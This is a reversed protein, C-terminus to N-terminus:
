RSEIGSGVAGPDGVSRRFASNPMDARRYAISDQNLIEYEDFVKMQLKGCPLELRNQACANEGVKDSM